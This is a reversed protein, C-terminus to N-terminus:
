RVKELANRVKIALENRKYPKNLLEVDDPLLGQKGLSGDTFGSTYLVGIQPRSLRVLNALDIGNLGGPMMIDTLLLDIDSHCEIMDLAETGSAAETVRYGLARLQGAVYQLVLANDEVLLIHETGGCIPEHTVLVSKGGVLNRRARPFYLSVTTGEHMCSTIDIYGQSQNVFGFVMSLGLGSGKGIEKTTFFPEFVKHLIEAPIGSGTDSLAIVVYEGALIKKPTSTNSSVTFNQTTITLEGGDPMADRANIAINLIASELQTADAEISWLPEMRRPIIAINEALARYLLPEMDNLLQNVDLVCPSLTQQRSFALLHSTLEAGKCAAEAAMKALDHLASQSGLQQALLETNGMIVTLLNNFDHAVGGTLQGLVEMKQAQRLQEDRQRSETIDRFYVALSDPAPYANVEFWKDLPSYLEIFRVTSQESVARRYETDFQTNLAAPFEDWLVKGLLESRARALVEEAQANLFTFRWQADLTFFADSMSELATVLQGSLQESRRQASKLEQSRLVIDLELLEAPAMNVVSQANKDPIVSKSVLETVDEVRHVIYAVQGDPGKIPTNVSSWYRDEFGGGSEVPRPIPYFQVAMVDAVGTSCARILSSRLSNVGQAEHDEPSAPFADFLLRGKIDERVRMTAALYADSVAVIEFSHPTLVLFKGPITEFLSQFYGAATEAQQRVEREQELLRANEEQLGVLQSVDRASVIMAARSQYTVPYANISVHIIQGSKLRHRWITMEGIEFPKKLFTRLSEVDEPPRINDIGMALFETLSYGYRHLAVNNVDLFQLSEVDFVWMPDPNHRFFISETIERNM